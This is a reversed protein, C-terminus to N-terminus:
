SRVAELHRAALGASQEDLLQALDRGRSAVLSHMFLLPIAVALGLLTTVLAESIGDAMLRPDGAGFLSIAQFTAIMGTVTGMLGLMPSVAALLKILGRGRELAPLEALVAEDLRRELLGADTDASSTTAALMVRGLANDDRPNDLNRRQRRVRQSQWALFSLRWFGVLLGFAGLGLILYGVIGGQALREMPNPARGLLRLVAGRSPDLPVTAVGGSSEEYDEIIRLFRAPPQREPSVLQATEPLWELFQGEALNTFPGLRTVTKSVPNGDPTLVEAEFREIRSSDIIGRAMVAWLSQIHEIDALGKLGQLEDLSAQDASRLLVSPSEGLISELDAANQRITGGIDSLEGAQERLLARLDALREDNEELQLELAENRQEESAQTAEMQETLQRQRDRAQLFEREREANRRQEEARLDVIRQLLDDLGAAMASPATSLVVALLLSLLWGQRNSVLRSM